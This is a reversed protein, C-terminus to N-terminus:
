RSRRNLREALSEALLVRLVFKQGSQNAGLYIDALGGRNIKEVISHGAFTTGVLSVGPSGYRVPRPNAISIAQTASRVAPPLDSSKRWRM